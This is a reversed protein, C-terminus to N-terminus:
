VTPHSHIRMRADPVHDPMRRVPGGRGAWRQCPHFSVLFTLQSRRIVRVARAGGGVRGGGRGRDWKM